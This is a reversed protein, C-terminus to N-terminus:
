RCPPASDQLFSFPRQSSQVNTWIYECREQAGDSFARRQESRWHSLREGYLDNAYGSLVVAGTLNDLVDLLQAHQTSTMEHAYADDQSRTAHMYPPDVYHLTDPGDHQRLVEIAPRNEIVVGRLRDVIATLAEPYNRWDHAPTTYSRNSNARFGTRSPRHMGATSFGMFSRIITRRAREVPDDTARYGDEFEDRAYPTLRLAKILDVARDCRLVRFLNVVEGDLDNYVESYSRPKRLLM